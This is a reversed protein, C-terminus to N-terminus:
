QWSFIGAVPALVGAASCPCTPCSDSTPGEPCTWGPLPGEPPLGLVKNAVNAITCCPPVGMRCLTACTLYFLIAGMLLFLVFIVSSTLGRM